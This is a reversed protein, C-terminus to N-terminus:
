LAPARGAALIDLVKEFYIKVYGCKKERKKPALM